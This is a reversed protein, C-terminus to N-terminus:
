LMNPINQDKNGNIHNNSIIIREHKVREVYDYYCGLDHPLGGSLPCNCSAPVDDKRAEHTSESDNCCYDEVLQKKLHIPNMEGVHIKVFYEWELVYRVFVVMVRRRIKFFHIFIASLKWGVRGWWNACRRENKRGIERWCM